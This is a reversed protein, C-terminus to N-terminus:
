FRARANVMATGLVLDHLGQGRPRALMLIISGIQVLVMTTAVTYLATHVLGLGFGLPGGEASRLEIAMMRMGPTASRRAITIVRYAFGVILWFVPLFFVATFGTLPVLIVTLIAILIGDIVWALLRKTPVDAYFEPDRDPDPLATTM